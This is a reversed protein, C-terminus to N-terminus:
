SESRLYRAFAEAFDAKDYGRFVQEGLRLGRSCIGFGRLRAALWNDTIPRGGRNAELWPNEPLSCLYRVLDKTRVMEVGATSFIQEIDRLLMVGTGKESLCAKATLHNFCALVREKWGGGAVEAIAFLPRWNDALRNHASPPLCPDCAKLAEFNDNAWRAMKRGLETEIETHRSDFRATMEGPLAKVMRIVISRDHLTGPLRGIGALVAPAFANFSRVANGEGECRIACAGRKHGANLLGRLDEAQNLYSDVEDLLLVPSFRDVIRFLTAANLNETRVPRPTMSALVDLTTTKGCGSEPSCLNLRPTQTFAEFRHTHQTWLALTDAAGPPLVSYMAFRRSVEDLVEAGNVPEPWPELTPLEVNRTAAEEIMEARRKAVEIDLSKVRMGLRKAESRRVREYEARSMQALRRFAQEDTDQQGEEEGKSSLLSDHGNGQQESPSDEVEAITERERPLLCPHPRIDNTQGNGNMAGEHVGPLHGNHVSGNGNTSGNTPVFRDLEDRAAFWLELACDLPCDHPLSVCPLRRQTCEGLRNTDAAAEELVLATKRLREPLKEEAGFIEAIAGYYKRGEEEPPKPYNSDPPEPLGVGAAALEDRFENLFMPVRRHGIKELVPIQNFLRMM